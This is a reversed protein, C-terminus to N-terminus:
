ADQPEQDESPDKRTHERVPLKLIVETGEGPASVIECVDETEYYMRLRRLVNKMGVGGDTNDATEEREEALVARVTEADMGAGNDRIRITVTERDETEERRIRLFLRKEGDLENLGHKVANEVVPQLIMAPVAFTATERDVEKEYLIDGSFRVNLIYIYDDILEVERGITSDGEEQRVIYRYFDAVKHLYRYTRDAGELMSLQAGANLTNFLFHPTIQARLYKLEADKLQAQASLARERMANERRLGAEQKDVYETISQVMRNFAGVVVGVEDGSRLDPLRVSFDGRGVAAAAGTLRQLPRLMRQLMVVLLVDIVAILALMLANGVRTLRASAQLREYRVANQEFQRNNLTYICTSLYRYQESLTAYYEQYADIDRGRKAAIAQETLALYTESMRSVNKEMMLIEDSSYSTNLARTEARYQEAHDYYAELSATNRTALYEEVDEQVRQLAGQASLLQRNSVYSSDVQTLLIQAHRNLYVTLAFSMAFTLLCAILIKTRLSLKM